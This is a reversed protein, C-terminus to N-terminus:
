ENDASDLPVNTIDLLLTGVVVETPLPVTVPAGPQLATWGGGPQADRIWAPRGPPGGPALALLARRPSRAPAVRLPAAELYPDDGLAAGDGGVRVPRDATGYAWAARQAFRVGCLYPPPLGRQPPDAAGAIEGPAPGERWTGGEAPLWAVRSGDSALWENGVRLSSEAWSPLVVGVRAHLPAGWGGDRSPTPLVRGALSVVVTPLRGAVAAARAPSLPTRFRRARLVVGGARLELGDARRRVPVGAPQQLHLEWGAVPTWELVGSVGPTQLQAGVGTGLILRLPASGVLVTEEGPVMRTMGRLEPALVGMGHVALAGQVAEPPRAPWASVQFDGWGHPPRDTCGEVRLIVYRYSAGSAIVVPPAGALAEWARCAAPELPFSEARVAELMREVRRPSQGSPVRLRVSVICPEAGEAVAGRSADLVQVAWSEASERPDLREARAEVANRSM